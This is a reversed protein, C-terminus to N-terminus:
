NAYRWVNTYVSFVMRAALLLGGFIAGTIYYSTAIDLKVSTSSFFESIVFSATFIAIFCALDILILTLRRFFSAKFM